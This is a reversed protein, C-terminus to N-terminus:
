KSLQLSFTGTSGGSVYQIKMFRAFFSDDFIVRNGSVTIDVNTALSKYAKYEGDQKNSHLITITPTGATVGSYGQIDLAWPVSAEFEIFDSTFSTAANWSTVAVNNVEPVVNEKQQEM